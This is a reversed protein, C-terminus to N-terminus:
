PYKVGCGYPESSAITVPRGSMAEDLAAAVHNRAGAIDAQEATPKDDIAGKYIVAGESNIVFMHPTTRAGYAMGVKGDADLLVATAASGKEAIAQNWEDPTMNGQKGPASSCISLWIVGSDVFRKQLSQMNGSGYHKVVFPCGHNVWELVVFKGRYDALKHTKGLSDVLEFDAAMEAAAPAPAAVAEPQTAPAAAPPPAQGCGLTLSLALFLACSSLGVTTRSAFPVNTMM